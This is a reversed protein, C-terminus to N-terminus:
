ILTKQSIKLHLKQPIDEITKLNETIVEGVNGDGRSTGLVLMVM